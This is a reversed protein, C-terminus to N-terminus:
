GESPEHIWRNVTEDLLEIDIPKSIFGSFGSSLFMDENGTLANATLAVIPVSRAYDSDLARIRQTAEIGDVDPMMHDM